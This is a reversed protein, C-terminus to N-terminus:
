RKHTLAQLQMCFLGYWLILSLGMAKAIARVRPDIDGYPPRFLTPTVGIIEKIIRMNWYLEVVIQDNTLTTLYPHSWTHFAIAHGAKYTDILLQPNYLIASGTFFFTGKINRTSLDSLAKPQYAALPGGDYTFAWANPAPCSTVDELWILFFWSKL